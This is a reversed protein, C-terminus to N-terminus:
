LEKGVGSLSIDTELSENDNQERERRMKRGKKRARVPRVNEGYNSGEM